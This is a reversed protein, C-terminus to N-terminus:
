GGNAGRADLRNRFWTMVRRYLQDGVVGDEEGTEITPNDNIEIVLFAGDIEKVDVGYLGDGILAAARVAIEIAGKPVRAMRVAQVRGYRRRGASGTSVIQWHGPAMHYRCAYLPKGGLVGIRWDFSSPMFAQAVVLASDDLIEGAHRVLEGAEDIRVVGRSFASDPRKLVCPLGVREAIQDVNGAHVVFTPPHPIHNHQLLEAQFVKNTARLISISDDIVVLGEAEARRALRYTPHNVATTMRLFLADFEAICGADEPGIVATDIGKERGAKIFARIARPDSPADEENEDVLIAMDYQYSRPTTRRDRRGFSREAQEIVFPRHSEPIESTSIPRISVLRWEKRDREFTGRLLPTPYQAYLAKALRDYRHALARGFYVSLDFRSTKLPAFSSQILEGLQESVVRRVPELRMDQLTEVAPLPRHGRAAALLSVYYGLTQYGYTRCFNYVRLKRHTSFGNGALYDRASVVDAGRLRLAWRKPAEVVILAPM